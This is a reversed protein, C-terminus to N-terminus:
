GFTSLPSQRRIRTFLPKECNIGDYNRTRASKAIDSIM